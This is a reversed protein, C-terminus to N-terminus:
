VKCQLSYLNQHTFNDPDKKKGQEEIEDGVTSEDLEDESSESRVIGPFFIKHQLSKVFTSTGWSCLVDTM